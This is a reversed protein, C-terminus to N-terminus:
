VLPGLKKGGILHLHLHDVIQGANHRVNFVLRYGQDAIGLEEALKKARWVIKSVLVGNEPKLEAVSPIHQRPVLLIHVPAVPHIDAFAVVEDDQYMRTASVSGAAIKCFLCDPNM